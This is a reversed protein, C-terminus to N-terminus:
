IDVKDFVDEALTLDESGNIIKLSYLFNKNQLLGNKRPYQPHCLQWSYKVV